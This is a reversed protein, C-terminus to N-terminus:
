LIQSLKQITFCSLKVFSVFLCLVYMSNEAIVFFNVVPLINETM